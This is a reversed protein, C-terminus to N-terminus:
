FSKRGIPHPGYGQKFLTNIPNKLPIAVKKPIEPDKKLTKAGGEEIKIQKERHFIGMTLVLIASNSIQIKLKPFKFKFTDFKLQFMLSVCRDCM